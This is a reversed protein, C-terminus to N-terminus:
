VITIFPQVSCRCSKYENSWAWPQCKRRITFAMLSPPNWGVTDRELNNKKYSYYPTPRSSRQPISPEWLRLSQCWGWMFGLVGLRGWHLRRQMITMDIIWDDAKLESHATAAMDNYYSKATWDPWPILDQAQSTMELCILSQSCESAVLSFWFSHNSMRGPMWRADRSCRCYAGRCLVAVRM